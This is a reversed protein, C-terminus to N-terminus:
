FLCMHAITIGKIINEVALKEYVRDSSPLAVPRLIRQDTIPCTLYEM